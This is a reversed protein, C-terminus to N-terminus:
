DRGPIVLRTVPQGKVLHSEVIEEADEPKIEGYWVGEPYIVAAPGQECVDLCGSKQIRVESRLGKKAAASKLAQLVEEAQKGKCCGRPHGEPRENMCVFVHRKPKPTLPPNM